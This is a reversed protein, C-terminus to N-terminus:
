GASGSGRGCDGAAPELSAALSPDNQAIQEAQACLSETDVIRRETLYREITHVADALTCRGDLLEHYLLHELLEVCGTYCCNPVDEDV